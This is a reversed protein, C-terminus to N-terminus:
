RKSLAAVLKEDARGLQDSQALIMGKGDLVSIQTAHSYQGDPLKRYQVSLAAAVLRM